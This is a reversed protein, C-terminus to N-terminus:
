ESPECSRVYYVFHVGRIHDEITRLTVTIPLSVTEAKSFDLALYVTLQEYGSIKETFETAKTEDNEPISKSQCLTITVPIDVPSTPPLEVRLNPGFGVIRMKGEGLLAKLEIAETEPASRQLQSPSSGPAVQKLWDVSDTVNEITIVAEVTIVTSFLRLDESRSALVETIEGRPTIDPIRKLLRLQTKQLEDTRAAATAGAAVATTRFERDDQSDQWDLAGLGLDAALAIFSIVLAVTGRSIRGGM